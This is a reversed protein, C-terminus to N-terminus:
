PNAPDLALPNAFSTSPAPYFRTWVCHLSPYDVLKELIKIFWIELDFSLSHLHKEWTHLCILEVLYSPFKVAPHHKKVETKLWYKVLLMLKKLNPNQRVNLRDVMFEKQLKAMSPSLEDALRPNERFFEYLERQDAFDNEWDYALVVDIEAEFASRGILKILKLNLMFRNTYVIRFQSTAYGAFTAFQRRFQRELEDIISKRLRAFANANELGREPCHKVFCVLDVDVHGRVATGKCM